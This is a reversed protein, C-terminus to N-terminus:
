SNITNSNGFFNNNCGNIETSGLALLLLLQTCTLINKGFLLFILAILVLYYSNM